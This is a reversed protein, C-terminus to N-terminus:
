ENKDSETQNMEQKEKLELYKENSVTLKLRVVRNNDMKIVKINYGQYDIFDGVNPVQEINSMLLGGISDVEKSEIDFNLKDDIDDIKVNGLILYERDNIKKIEEDEDDDYEDKIDGVIEELIDELTVMGATASYEDLVIILNQGNSRMNTLADSIKKNEYLFYAKRLVKKIDFNEESIDQGLLFDKVNILGIINDPTDEYVPIRTYQEERFIKVIDSYTDNSNILVMNARPTMIDKLTKDGFEFVNQIIEKEESEIVGEEHSIDVITKLEEETFTDEKENMNIGFLKCMLNSITDLVIRFPSFVILAFLIFNVFNITINESFKTAIRKPTIECFILVIITLIFTAIAVPLVRIKITVLITVLTSIVINVANNLILMTSIIKQLSDKISLAIKAKKNGSDALSQIRIFNASTVATEIMSVLASILLLVFITITMWFSLPDFSNNDM